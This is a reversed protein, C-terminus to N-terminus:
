RARLYSSPWSLAQEGAQPLDLRLATGVDRLDRELSAMGMSLLTPFDPAGELAENYLTGRTNDAVRQMRVLHVLYIDTPYEMTEELIRCCNEAYNGFKMADFETSCTTFRFYDYTLAHHSALSPLASDVFMSRLWFAGLFVRREALTRPEVPSGSTGIASVGGPSISSLAYPEKDLGLETVLALVMHLVRVSRPGLTLHV